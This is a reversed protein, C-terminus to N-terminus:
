VAYGKVSLTRVGYNGLSTAVGGYDITPPTADSGVVGMIAQVTHEGPEVNPVVMFARLLGSVSTSIIGQDSPVGHVATGQKVGDLLFDAGWLGSGTNLQVWLEYSLELNVVQNNTFTISPHNSIETNIWSDTSVAVSLWEEDKIVIGSRVYKPDKRVVTTDDKLIGYSGGLVDSSSDWWYFVAGKSMPLPKSTQALWAIEWEGQTPESVQELFIIDASHDNVYNNMQSMRNLLQTIYIGQQSPDTPWPGLNFNVPEDYSM